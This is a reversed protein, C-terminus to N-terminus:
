FTFGVRIIPNSYPSRANENLNYLVTLLFASRRGIPQIIGGGVLVSHVIFRGDETYPPEFYAKELSLAEYEVQAFIGTNLGINLGEGLNSIIIYRTFINGGYIITEYPAYYGKDKFYEFRIGTGASLKPTIFYGVLPSIEINTITGFQMGFNGGFFIRDIPRVKEEESQAFLIMPMFSLFLLLFKIINKNKHTWNMALSTNILPVTM